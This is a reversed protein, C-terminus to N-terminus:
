DFLVQTDTWGYAYSQMVVGDWDYPREFVFVGGIREYFARNRNDRLVEVLMSHIGQEALRRAVERVLMRGIGQRHYEPLVFLLRVEGRYMPDDPRPGGWTYGVVVGADTEAVVLFENAPVGETTLMRRWNAASEVETFTLCADPVIGRFSADTATILVHALAEADDPRVDRLHITM